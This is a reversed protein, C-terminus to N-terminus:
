PSHRWLLSYFLWILCLILLFGYSVLNARWVAQRISGQVQRRLMVKTIGWEILFSIFFAPVLLVAAAAPVMWYLDDEYPVLWAAQVTVALLKKPATDLGYATGGSTAVIEILLM